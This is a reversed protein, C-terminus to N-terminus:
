RRVVEYLYNEYMVMVICVLFKVCHVCCVGEYLYNEYLACWRDTPRRDFATKKMLWGCMLSKELLSDAFSNDIPVTTFPILGPKREIENEDEVDMSASSQDSDDSKDATSDPQSQELEVQEPSVSNEVSANAETTTELQETPGPENKKAGDDTAEEDEPKSKGVGM